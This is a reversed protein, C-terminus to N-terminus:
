FVLQRKVKLGEDQWCEEKLWKAPHPIYKGEDRIWARTKAQCKIAIEMDSILNPTVPHTRFWEKVPGPAVKNPYAAWFVEFAAQAADARRTTYEQLTQTREAELEQSMDKKLSFSSVGGGEKKKLLTHTNEKTPSSSPSPPSGKTSALRDSLSLTHSKKWRKENGKKGSESRENHYAVGAVHERQLWEHVLRKGQRTWARLVIPGQPTFRKLPVGLLRAIEAPDNPLTGPPTQGWSIELLETYIGKQEHTMGVKAKLHDGPFYRFYPLSM